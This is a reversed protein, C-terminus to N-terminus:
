KEIVIIAIASKQSHSLSIHVKYNELGAALEGFLRVHPRGSNDSIVEMDQWGAHQQLSEPISKYLAEKAAFRAAISSVSNSRNLCFHKENDTLIRSIFRDGWKEVIRQFREVEVIDIGTGYIM